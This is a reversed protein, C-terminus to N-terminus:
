HSRLTFGINGSDDGKQIYAVYSWLILCLPPNVEWVRYADSGVNTEWVSSVRIWIGVGSPGEGEHTGSIRFRRQDKDSPPLGLFMEGAQETLWVIWSERKM